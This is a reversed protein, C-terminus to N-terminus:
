QTGRANPRTAIRRDGDRSGRDSGRESGRDHLNRTFQRIVQEIDRAVVHFTFDAGREALSRAVGFAFEARATDDALSDATATHIIWGRARLRDRKDRDRRWQRPDTRHHDGDYEVAVRRDPWAMDLTMPAGSPFVIGAVEHNAVSAPIGHRMLTLNMHSEQMSDVNPRVLPMVRMWSRKGAFRPMDELFRLMDHRVSQPHRTTQRSMTTIVIECLAVLEDAPLHSSLQAVTHLPNLTYVTENIRVIDTSTFCTWVHNRIIATNGRNRRPKSSSVTHLMGDDIDCQRPLPVGQLTLSTTMGFLLRTGIQRTAQTCQQILTRRREALSDSAAPPHDSGPLPPQNMHHPENM